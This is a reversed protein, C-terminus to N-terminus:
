KMEPDMDVASPEARTLIPFVVITQPKFPTIANSNIYYKSSTMLLTM